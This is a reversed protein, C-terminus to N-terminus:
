SITKSQVKKGFAIYALYGIVNFLTFVIIWGINLRRHHYANIIAWITFLTAYIAIGSFLIITMMSGIYRTEMEVYWQKGDGNGYPFFDSQLWEPAWVERQYQYEPKAKEVYEFVSTAEIDKVNYIKVKSIQDTVKVLAAIKNGMDESVTEKGELIHFINTAVFSNENSNEKETTWIFGFTTLSLVLFSIALYLVWKAFTKQAQFLQAVISRMEKEGGFREIALEIAEQESKGESKLEHVAELLHSKMEAKLEQIEKRNGGVNQYISDVFVEIQKM